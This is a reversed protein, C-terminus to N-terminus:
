DREPPLTAVFARWLDIQVYLELFVQPRLQFYGAMLHTKGPKEDFAAEFKSSVIMIPASPDEPIQGWWGVNQFRRLYWPLPWYDNAACMVKVLTQHRQPSVQALAEVKNALKVLDPSTHAYVYPNLQSAAYPYSAQWAQWALHAAGVILLLSVGFRAGPKPFFRLATVAGVGALLIMGHWFGLLCWPTKYPILTYVATLGMTYFAITRVFDVDSSPRNRNWFASAVGIGALVFILAESWIPGNKYHFFLLRRFYFYWPNQHPSDGGARTLWPLYTHLSDLPGRANTFFSTFFAVSVLLAVALALLLHKAKFAAKLDIVRGEIQRSWLLTSVLALVMCVIAFVFTEKTAYMLGIALGAAISWGACPRRSYRWAAALALASFFVLLLEHIYYRSYFVMAPSIATFGAAWLSATRGLGEAFLPLLLILAVGYLVPVWRFTAETFANFDPVRTLGAPALTSYPLTPGHFENPDYVYSNKEWLDRFKLANVAEDNHMPRRELQPIRLALALGAILLLGAGFWRNM